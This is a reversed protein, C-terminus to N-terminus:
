LRSHLYLPVRAIENAMKEGVVMFAAAMNEREARRARTAFVRWIARESRYWKSLSWPLTLNLVKDECYEVMM